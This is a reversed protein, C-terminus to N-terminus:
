LKHPCPQGYRTVWNCNMCLVTYKDRPCGQKLIDDYVGFNGVKARHEKGGQGVHEVTLFAYIKEGCCTCQGGYKDIILKRLEAVYVHKKVKGWRRKTKKM